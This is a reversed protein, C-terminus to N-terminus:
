GGKNATLVDAALLEVAASEVATGQFFDANTSAYLTVQNTFAFDRFDDASMLGHDVPEHAEAVASRMDPVDWHGLDTSMIARLKANFPNVRDDFAWATTPDDAECGFYFHPIFRDRFDEAREIEMPAFNDEVDDPAGRLNLIRELQDLKGEVMEGGYEEFLQQILERDLKAPDLHPLNPAGRKEWRAILDAYLRCGHAAGGELLAIKLEPFRRTVGGMLLSKALVEGAAAFHGIHNYMYNSMSSRDDMGMGNSHEAVAFGLEVCKAWFPDYDYESDLALLDLYYAESAADPHKALLRPDPRRPLSVGGAIMIVKLGTEKVAYEAEQIGMEPTLIPVVAAPTLRDAFPRYVEAAYRNYARCCAIRMEPDPLGALTRSVTPYVVSYDIGLEDLREYFLGPLHATARDLTNKAPFSWWGQRPALPDHRGQRMWLEGSNLGAALYREVMTTGGVEKLYDLFVPGMELHHGDADIVPHDLRARVQASRSESSAVM